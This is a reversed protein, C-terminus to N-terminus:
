NQYSSPEFQAYYVERQSDATMRHRQHFQM